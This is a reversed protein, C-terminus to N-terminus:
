CGPCPQKPSAVDVGLRRADTQPSPQDIRLGGIALVLALVAAAAGFIEFTESLGLADATLGAAVAPLGLSLYGVVYFASMVEGRRDAPIAGTLHRVSGTFALGLGAGAVASSVLFSGASSTAVSGAIMGVGLAILAAGAATLVRNSWGSGALQALAGPAMLAAVAIGGVLADHTGLLHEALGPGLALYLGAISWSALAGVAALLFPGRASRSVRPRRVRMGPRHPDPVPEPLLRVLALLLLIMVAVVVFAVVRPAPSFQVVASSVLAGAGLGALIMVGNVLAALKSDGSPRLDILAAGAASLLAGTALGQIARAVFLWLVSSAAAFVFMSILLAFLSWALVPRRGAEDSIGGILLL